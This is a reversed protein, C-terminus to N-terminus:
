AYAHDAQAAAERLLSLASVGDLRRPDFRLRRAGPPRIDGGLRRACMHWRGFQRGEVQGGTLVNARDHRRDCAIRGFTRMVAGEAGELVQLFWGDHVLLLGTVGAEANNRISVQLISEIHADLDRTEAHARSFYILRHLDEGM